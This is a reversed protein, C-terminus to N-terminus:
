KATKIESIRRSLEKKIYEIVDELKAMGDSDAHIRIARWVLDRDGGALKVLKWFLRRQGENNITAM